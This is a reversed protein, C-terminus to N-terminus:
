SRIIKIYDPHFGISEVRKFFVNMKKNVLFELLSMADKPNVKKDELIEGVTFCYQSFKDVETKFEM